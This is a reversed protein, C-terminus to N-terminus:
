RTHLHSQRVKDIVPDTRYLHTAVPQEEAVQTLPAWECVVPPEWGTIESPPVLVVLELENPTAADIEDLCCAIADARTFHLFGQQLKGSDGFCRHEPYRVLVQTLPNGCPDHRVKRDVPFLERAEQGRAKCRVLLRAVDM